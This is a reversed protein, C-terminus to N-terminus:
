DIKDCWILYIAVPHNNVQYSAIFDTFLLNVDNISQSNTHINYRMKIQLKINFMILLFHTYVFLLHYNSFYIQAIYLIKVNEIKHQNIFQSDGNGNGIYFRTISRQSCDDIQYARRSNDCPLSVILIGVDHYKYLSHVLIFIGVEPSVSIM